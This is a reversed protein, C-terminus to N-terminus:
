PHSPSTPNPQGTTLWAAAAAAGATVLAIGAAMGTSMGSVTAIKDNKQQNNKADTDVSTAAGADLYTTGTASTIALAGARSVIVVKGQTESIEFQASRQKPTITLGDVRAQMAKTTTIVAGGNDIQIANGSFQVSSKAAVLVTSGNAHITAASNEATQIKDGVFVASSRAVGAGNLTAHGTAYLMAANTDALVISAPLVAIMMVSLWRTCRNRM